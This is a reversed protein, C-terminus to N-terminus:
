FTPMGWGFMVLNSRRVTGGGVAISMGLEEPHPAVDTSM